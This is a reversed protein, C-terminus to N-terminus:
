QQPQQVGSFERLFKLRHGRRKIAYPILSPTRVSIGLAGPTWASLLISNSFSDEHNIIDSNNNNDTCLDEPKEGESLQKEEKNLGTVGIWGAGSLVVDVNSQDLNSVTEIPDLTKSKMSPLVGCPGIFNDANNSSDIFPALFKTFQRNYDDVEITPVIHIPLHSFTTLYVSDPAQDECLVGPTDYCWAHNSFYRADLVNTLLRSGQDGDWTARDICINGHLFKSTLEEVGFENAVCNGAKDDSETAIDSSKWTYTPLNLLDPLLGRAKQVAYYNLSRRDHISSVIEKPKLYRFGYSMNSEKESILNRQARENRSQTRQGRKAANMLTLPFSLLGSTTGPWTSITARHISEKAESKCLDSLLLRNFLSSKGTNASGLLYIPNKSHFRKSLLFDVLATVGYGTLASVIFISNINDRPIKSRSIAAELLASHWRELFRPGDGPLQDVKNGVLIYKKGELGTHLDSILSHPLNTMDAIMVVVADDHRKIEKIVKSWFDSENATEQRADVHKQLLNCRVCLTFAPRRSKSRNSSRGTNSMISKYETAPIFGPYGAAKSHLPSGCGSCAVSLLPLSPDEDSYIKNLDESDLSRTLHPLEAECNKEFSNPRDGNELFNASKTNNFPQRPVSERSEYFLSRFGQQEKTNIKYAFKRISSHIKPHLKRIFLCLQLTSM